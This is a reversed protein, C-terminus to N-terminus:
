ASGPEINHLAAAQRYSAGLSPALALLAAIRRAIGMFEEVEAVMLPRGLLPAERYSLWKKLVQYGGLTYAWVAPPANRWCTTDNLYIDLTTEGRDNAREEIRGRGPMTVGGLGAYGWGATVALNPAAGAFDFVAIARLGPAVEGTTVGPVPREADLLATVQEGLAASAALAEADAPLPVRPWDQRLAGANDQRYAPAHLVALTHHFLMAADAGLGALYRLALASINERRGQFLHGPDDNYLYLPFLNAGREDL